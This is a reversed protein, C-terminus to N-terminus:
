RIMNDVLKLTMQRTVMKAIAHFVQRALSQSVLNNLAVVFEVGPMNQTPVLWLDDRKAVILVLAKAMLDLRKECMEIHIGFNM